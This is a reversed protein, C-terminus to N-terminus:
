PRGQEYIPPFPAANALACRDPAPSVFPELVTTQLSLALEVVDPSLNLRVDSIAVQFDGVSDADLVIDAGIHCPELVTGRVTNQESEQVCACVRHAWPHRQELSDRAGQVRTCESPVQALM